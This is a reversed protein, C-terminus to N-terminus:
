EQSVAEVITGALGTELETIDHRIQRLESEHQGAHDRVAKRAAEKLARAREVRRDAYFTGGGLEQLRDLLREFDNLQHLPQENEAWSPENLKDRASVCYVDNFERAWARADAIHRHFDPVVDNVLQDEPVRDCRNLVLCVHEGPFINVWDALARINDQRKPNAVDFVCLMVDSFALVQELLGRHTRCETSDTDPTDVIIADRLITGAHTVIGMKGHEIRDLLQQADGTARAVVAVERTTPRDDGVQVADDRGVLANILTSKGSGTPGVVAIVPKAELRERLGGLIGQLQKMFALLGRGPIWHPVKQLEANLANISACEAEFAILRRVRDPEDM